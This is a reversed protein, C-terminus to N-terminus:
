KHRCNLIKMIEDYQEPSVRVEREGESHTRFLLEDHINKYVQILADTEANMVEGMDVDEIKM